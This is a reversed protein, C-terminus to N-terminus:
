QVRVGSPAAAPAVQPQAEVQMGNLYLELFTYGSEHFRSGTSARPDLGNRVLWADPIGDGSTDACLEGKELMPYGGVQDEHELLFKQARKKYGEEIIRVDVPDRIFVWRGECDLRQSAGVMPLVRDELDDVHVSTIPITPSSNPANKRYIDAAPPSGCTSGSASSSSALMRYNDYGNVGGWNGSIYIKSPYTDNREVTIEHCGRSSSKPELPGLDYRNGIFDVNVGDRPPDSSRVGSLHGYSNYFINNTFRANGAFMGVLPLRAHATSLVNRHFDIDGMDTGANPTDDRHTSGINVGFRMYYLNEAFLSDQVSINRLRRAPGSGPNDWITVANGGWWNISVHDIIVNYISAGYATSIRIGTTTEVGSPGTYGPRLRLYRIVVDHTGIGILAERLSATPCSVKTPDCLPLTGPVKGTLQIGGGPATQGAITVYPNKIDIRSNLVITGSVRFVVTRPGKMEACARLSGPGSDNLNIVECVAGGRGGTALAGSGEAGPFAPLASFATLPVVLLVLAVSWALTALRSAHVLAIANPRFRGYWNDSNLSSFSSCVIM